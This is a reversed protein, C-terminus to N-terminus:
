SILNLRSRARPEVEENQEFINVVKCTLYCTRKPLVCFCKRLLISFALFAVLKFAKSNM